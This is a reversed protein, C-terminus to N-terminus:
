IYEKIIEAANFGMLAHGETSPHIGDATLWRGEPLIKNGDIFHLNDLKHSAHYNKIIENFKMYKESTGENYAGSYLYMSPAFVPKGTESLKDIFYTYCKEFEGCDFAGVMNIGIEAYALDWDTKSSLWDAIAKEAFCSGGVGKNIVDVGLYRAATQIYCLNSAFAGAGHTISSGYALMTKVPLESKEPPRVEGELADIEGVIAMFAHFHIRIVNPSYICGEFFKEGTGDKLIAPKSICINKTEGAAIRYKAQYFDGFYVIIDGNGSFSTINVFVTDSDTVFRLECNCAYRAMNRCHSNCEKLVEKPYRFLRDGRAEKEIYAVNHYMVNGKIM